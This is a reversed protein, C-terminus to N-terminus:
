EPLNDAVLARFPELAVNFSADMIMVLGAGIWLAPIVGALSGSNPLFILATASLLAGWTLFYPKRKPGAPELRAIM